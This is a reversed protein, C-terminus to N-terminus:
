AAMQMGRKMAGNSRRVCETVPLVDKVPNVDVRWAECSKGILRRLVSVRAKQGGSLNVGRDGIITMDGSPLISLDRELACDRIVSEYRCAAM